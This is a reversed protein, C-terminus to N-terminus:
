SEGRRAHPVLEVGRGLTEHRDPHSLAGLRFQREPKRTIELTPPLEFNRAATVVREFSLEGFIEFALPTDEFQLEIKTSGLELSLNPGGNDDNRVSPGGGIPIDRV